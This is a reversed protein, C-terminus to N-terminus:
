KALHLFDQSVRSRLEVWVGNKPRLTLTPVLELPRGRVPVPHFKQAITALLLVAEMMAFSSGICQRPGAGFPFYAFRPMARSDDRLWRDPDFELPNSFFRPDRHMVWPSMVINAGAPVRYGALEFDQIATRGLAWAPPYLRLAEKVVAEAYPLRPLDSVAPVRGALVRDLEQHLKAAAPPNAALLHWVYSLALATTEHGALLFTMVEDRLQRGTMRSGDEDRAAVLMSLLDGSDGQRRHRAIIQCVTDDLKRVARRFKLLGPRPLLRLVPLFILRAGSFDRTLANLVESLERTGEPEVNFLTHVAISLTLRMMEQHIDLVAGPQWAAIAREAYHTMLAAYSFIRERHFAPQSLRRQRKWADGEATLLSEGFLWRSNRIVRDKRFNQYHRVLVSEILGPHNLFYVHIWGARYYFVDGYDRAWGTFVALPDPSALPVNGILFRPQPGPPRM